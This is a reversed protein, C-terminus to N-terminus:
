RWNEYRATEADDSEEEVVVRDIQMPSHTTITITTTTVAPKSSRVSATAAAAAVTSSAQEKAREELRYIRDIIMAMNDSQERVKDRLEVMDFEQQKIIARADSLLIASNISLLVTDPLLTSSPGIQPPAHSAHYHKALEVMKNTAGSLQQGGICVTCGLEAGVKRQQPDACPTLIPHRHQHQQKKDGEM